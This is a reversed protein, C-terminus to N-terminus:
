TPAEGGGDVAPLMVPSAELRQIPGAEGRFSEPYHLPM